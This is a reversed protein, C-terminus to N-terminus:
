GRRHHGHTRRPSRLVRSPAARRRVRLTQCDPCSARVAAGAALKIKALFQHQPLLPNGEITIRSVTARPGPTVHFVLTARQPDRDARIEPAVTARMYGRDRYLAVLTRAAEAARGISPSGSFRDVVARRLEDQGIGTTGSFEINRVTQQLIMEYRLAVGGPSRTAHVRIDQFRGLGYLHALTERVEAMRLPEGVRTEVIEDILPDTEARGGAELRM